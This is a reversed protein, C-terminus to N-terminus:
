TLMIPIRYPQGAKEPEKGKNGEEDALRTLFNALFVNSIVATYREDENASTTQKELFSWLLIFYPASTSIKGEKRDFHM